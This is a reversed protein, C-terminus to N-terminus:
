DEGRYKSIFGVVVDMNNRNCQLNLDKKYKSTILKYVSNEPIRLNNRIQCFTVTFERDEGQVDNHESQIRVIVFNNPLQFSIDQKFYNLKKTKCDNQLYIPIDTKTVKVEWRRDKYNQSYTSKFGNFFENINKTKSDQKQDYYNPTTYYSALVPRTQNLNTIPQKDFVIGGKAGTIISDIIVDIPLGKIM